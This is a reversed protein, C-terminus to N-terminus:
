LLGYGLPRRPGTATSPNMLDGLMKGVLILLLPTMPLVHRITAYNMSRILMFFFFISSLLFVMQPVDKRALLQMIAYLLAILVLPILPLGLSDSIGEFVLLEPAREYGADVTTPM